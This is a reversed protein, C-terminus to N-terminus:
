KLEWLLNRNKVFLQTNEEVIKKIAASTMHLERAISAFSSPGHERICKIIEPVKADRDRKHRERQAEAIKESPTLEKQPFIKQQGIVPKIVSDTKVGAKLMAEYIPEIESLEAKLEDIRNKLERLYDQPKQYM